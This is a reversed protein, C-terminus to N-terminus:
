RRLGSTSIIYNGFPDSDTPTTKVESSIGYNQILDDLSVSFASSESIDLSDLATSPQPSTSGSADTVVSNQANHLRSQEEQLKIEKEALQAELEGFLLLRARATELKQRVELIKQELRPDKSDTDNMKYAKPSTGPTIFVM